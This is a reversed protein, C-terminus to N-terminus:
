RMSINSAEIMLSTAPSAVIEVDMAGKIEVAKDVDAWASVSVVCMGLPGKTVIQASFDGVAVIDLLAPDSTSWIAPGYIKPVKNGVANLGVAVVDAKQTDMLQLAM